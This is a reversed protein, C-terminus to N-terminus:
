EAQGTNNPSFFPEIVVIGDPRLHRALNTLTKQLRNLTKAYGISSFLCIIVDFRRPLDFDAM